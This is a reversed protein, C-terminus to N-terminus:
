RKAKIWTDIDETGYSCIYEVVDRKGLIKQVTEEDLTDLLSLM